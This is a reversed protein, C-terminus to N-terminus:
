VLTLKSEQGQMRGMTTTAQEEYGLGAGCILQKADQGLAHLLRIRQRARLVEPYAPHYSRLWCPDPPTFTQFNLGQQGGGLM